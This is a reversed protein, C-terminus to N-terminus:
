TPVPKILQTSVDPCQVTNLPFANLSFPTEIVLSKIAKRIDILTTVRGKQGEKNLTTGIVNKLNESKSKYESILYSQNKILAAVQNLETGIQCLEHVCRQFPYNQNKIKFNSFTRIKMFSGM